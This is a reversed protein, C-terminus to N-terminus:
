PQGVVIEIRRNRARGELTTNSAIPQHEAYGVASMREPDIGLTTEFFHVVNVARAASLEWNSPFLSGSTSSLPV